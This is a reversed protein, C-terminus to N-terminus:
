IIMIVTGILLVITMLQAIFLSMEKQSQHDIHDANKLPPVAITPCISAGSSIFLDLFAPSHSDCDPIRTPFNVIQTLDNSLALLTMIVSNALGILEVM